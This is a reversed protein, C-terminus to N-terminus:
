GSYMRAPKCDDNCFLFTAPNRGLVNAVAAITDVSVNGTGRQLKTFTAESVGLLEAMQYCFLDRQKRQNNIIQGLRALISNADLRHAWTEIDAQGALFDAISLGLAQAMHELTTLTINNRREVTRIYTRYALGEGPAAHLLKAMDQHRIGRSRREERLLRAINTRLPNDTRGKKDRKM